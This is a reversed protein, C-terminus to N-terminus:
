APFDAQKGFQPHITPGKQRIAERFHTAVPLGDELRVEVLYADVVRNEAFARRGQAEMWGATEADAAVLAHRPDFSWGDRTLFVVEGDLLDNATMIVPLKPGKPTKATKANTKVDDVM